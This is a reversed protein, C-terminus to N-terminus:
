CCEDQPRQRYSEVDAHAWGAFENPEPFVLIALGSAAAGRTSAIPTVHAPRVERVWKARRRFLYPIFDALYAASTPPAAASSKGAPGPATRTVNCIRSSCIGTVVADARPARQRSDLNSALRDPFVQLTESPLEGFVRRYLGSFRGPHWFGWRMAVDTVTSDATNAMRLDHRARHLNRARFFATPSVGFERDFAARIWRDTVGITAALASVRPSPGIQDAAELCSRVIRASAKLRPEAPVTGALADDLTTRLDAELVPLLEPTVIGSFLCDCVTRLLLGLRAVEDDETVTLGDAGATGAEDHPVTLAAFTLPQRATGGHECGPTYRWLSRPDLEVGNWSGEALTLPVGIVDTGPNVEGFTVLPFDFAGFSASTDGLQLGGVTVHGRTNTLQAAELPIGAIAEEIVEIDTGRVVMAPVSRERQPIDTRGAM